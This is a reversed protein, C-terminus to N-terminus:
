KFTQVPPAQCFIPAPKESEAVVAELAVVALKALEAATAEPAIREEPTTAPQVITSLPKGGTLVLM